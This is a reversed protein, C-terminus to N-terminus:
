IHWVWDQHQKAQDAALEKWFKKMLAFSIMALVGADADSCSSPPKCCARSFAFASVCSASQSEKLVGATIFVMESRIVVKLEESLVDILDPVVFTIALHTVDNTFIM